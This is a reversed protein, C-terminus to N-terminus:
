RGDACENAVEVYHLREVAIAVLSAFTTLMSECRSGASLKGRAAAHVVLVGRVRMPAQLPVYSSAHAPNMALAKVAIIEGKETPSTAATPDTSLRDERRPVWAVSRTARAPCCCRQALRGRSSSAGSSQPWKSRRPRGPWTAPSSTCRARKRKVARAGTGGAMCVHRLSPRSSARGGLMVGLTIVYQVDAVAFSFRAPVFLFDFLLVCLVGVRRRARPRRAARGAAGDASVAHRRQRRRSARAAALAIAATRRVGIRSPTGRSGRASRSDGGACISFRRHEDTKASERTTLLECESRCEHKV